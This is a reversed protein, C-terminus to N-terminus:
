GPFLMWVAFGCGLTIGAAARALYLVTPICVAARGPASSVSQKMSACRPSRQNKSVFAPIEPGGNADHGIIKRAATLKASM